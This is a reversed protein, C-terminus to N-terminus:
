MVERRVEKPFMVKVGVGEITLSVGNIVQEFM